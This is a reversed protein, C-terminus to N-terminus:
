IYIFIESQGAVGLNTLGEKGIGCQMKISSAQKEGCQEGSYGGCRLV